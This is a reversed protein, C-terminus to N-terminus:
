LTHIVGNELVHEKASLLRRFTPSHTIVIVGSGLAALRSVIEAISSLAADDQGLTPEDLILWPRWMAVTAALAVRKRIVFPLDLPHQDNYQELGFLRTAIMAYPTDVLKQRPIGIAIEDRVSTTFLQLDPNQYHYAVLAAPYQWPREERGDVLIRGSTPRHVGVLLRALTSKGAGNHGTLVHVQGPRLELEVASLVDPGNPYHFSLRDLHIMPAMIPSLGALCDVSFQHPQRVASASRTTVTTIKNVGSRWEELRNDAIVCRGDGLSRALAEILKM